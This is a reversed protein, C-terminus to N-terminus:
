PYVRPPLFPPLCAPMAQAGLLSAEVSEEDGLKEKRAWGRAWGGPRPKTDLYFGPSLDSTVKDMGKGLFMSFGLEELQGNLSKRKSCRLPPSHLLLLLM